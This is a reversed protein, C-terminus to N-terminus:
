QVVLVPLKTTHLLKTTVSGLYLRQSLSGVGNSGMVILDIENKDAYERIAQAIKGRPEDIVVTEVDLGRLGAKTEDLLKQSGASAEKVMGMWDAMTSGSAIRLNVEYDIVAAVSIVNLLVLRSGFARALKEAQLLARDSYESGDIPVLIRRM